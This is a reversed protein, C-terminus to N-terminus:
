VAPPTHRAVIASSDVGAPLTGYHSARRRRGLRSACFADAVAPPADRVCCRARCRWRWAARRAAARADRASEPDRSSARLAGVFADLRADAGAALTSRTSTPRAAGRARAGARAARRAGHRQGLGGLDLVAAGRPLAAAHGSEEVYGNGGLCELAEFAHDPARKCVWYKGIATGLRKLPAETTTRAAIDYARALRLASRTAAESEIALDALVNRMLPQDALASASRTATRPTGRDGARRGRADRRGRRARLGAAHPRGDRHDDARRPGARRGDAGVRRPVRGGSSANSRNGLKDKLRQISSGRQAHRGAPRAAAVFCTVGEDTQALVLFVDCMPASCFWKHGSSRTSPAAGGGNLPTAMTTNARVDSGGQKETMAMGCTRRARRAARAAAPRRLDDRTLLPEWEAALEPADRLAPVAAFTM